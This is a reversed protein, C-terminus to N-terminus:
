IDDMNCVINKMVNALILIQKLGRNFMTYFLKM